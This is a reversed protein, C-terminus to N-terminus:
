SGRKQGMRLTLVKLDLWSDSVQITPVLLWIPYESFSSLLWPHGKPSEPVLMAPEIRSECLTFLRIKDKIQFVMSHKQQSILGDLSEHNQLCRHLIMALFPWTLQFFYFTKFTKFNLSKLSKSLRLLRLKLVKLVKKDFIM